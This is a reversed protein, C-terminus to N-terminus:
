AAHSERRTPPPGVAPIQYVPEVPTPDPSGCAVWEDLSARNVYWRGHEKRGRVRGDAILRRVFMRSRGTQAAAETLTLLANM